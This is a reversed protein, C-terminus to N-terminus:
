NRGGNDCSIREAHKKTWIERERILVGTMPIPSVRVSYPQM